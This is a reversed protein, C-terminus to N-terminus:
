RKRLVKLTKFDEKTELKKKEELPFFTKFYFCM